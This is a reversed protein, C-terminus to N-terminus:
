QGSRAGRRSAEERDALLDLGAKNIGEMRPVADINLMKEDKPDYKPWEPLGPGNPNGTRAFNVWYMSSMWAVKRDVDTWPRDAYRLNDFVYIIEAGHAAGRKETTKGDAAFYPVSQSFLYLYAPAKGTKTQLQAWTRHGAFNADRYADHYAKKVEEDTKAPYARLFSDAQAEFIRKAWEIYAAVTTPPSGEGRGGGPNRGEDNTGGTILPVDSQKGTAFITYIDEPLFWGDVITGTMGSPNRLIAAELQEAPMARLEALSRAGAGEAFRVGTAEAEALTAMRGFVTHSQGIARHFLGRALPSAMLWNVSRSGGSEGFITVNNPDGGFKAINNKVWKLAAIQDLAGYNGSSRNESEKTLEPHAMWGFVNLRYNFTVAVVGKKALGNPDYLGESGSGGVGGGGYIWVMVPLRENASKAPTWVNLYLCDENLPTTGDAWAAQFMPRKQQMCSACFHDAVRVGEWPIVPQPPRWRLNGIPPAAYPIGRFMRVGFGWSPTGSVLGGDVPIPEQLGTQRQAEVLVPQILLLSAVALPAFRKTM